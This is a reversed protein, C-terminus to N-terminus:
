ESSEGEPRLKAMASKWMKSVDSSSGSPNMPSHKLGLNINGGSVQEFAEPSLEAEDTVKKPDNNESM